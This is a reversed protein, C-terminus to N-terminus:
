PRSLEAPLAVSQLEPPRTNLGREQCVVIFCFREKKQERARYWQRWSEGVYGMGQSRGAVRLERHVADACLGTVAPELQYAESITNTVLLSPAHLSQRLSYVANNALIVYPCHYLPSPKSYYQALAALLVISMPLQDRQWSLIVNPVSVSDPLRLFPLFSIAAGVM